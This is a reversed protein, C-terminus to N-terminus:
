KINLIENLLEKASKEKKATEDEDTTLTLTLMDGGHVEAAILERPLIIEVNKETLLVAKDEEFRDFELSLNQVQHNNKMQTKLFHGSM